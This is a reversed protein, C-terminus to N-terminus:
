RASAKPMAISPSYGVVVVEQANHCKSKIFNETRGSRYPADRRKSVIGELGMECAHKLILPGDEDFHETYRIVGRRGNGKLLRALAAKRAVLPEGTLDRGDLHLLDFAWYVFRDSRGDKLDTQLLSFNSIGHEDEVVLEGDILATEAPLAAVAEAVPKFRQTWDQQKRTLLRVKGHDLRAEIRYGDFKIEHLWDPGSPAQDHLTALGAPRFRATEIRRRRCGAKKQRAQAPAARAAKAKAQATKGGAKGRNTQDAAQDGGRRGSQRRRRSQQALGAKQRQGRRDGRDLPRHGGVAAEGGFYGKARDARKEDKGKILLWNEHREGARARM